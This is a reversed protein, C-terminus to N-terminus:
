DAYRNLDIYSDNNELSKKLKEEKLHKENEEVEHLHRLAAKAKSENEEVM